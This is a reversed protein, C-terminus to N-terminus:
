SICQVNMLLVIYLILCSDDISITNEGHINYKTISQVCWSYLSYITVGGGRKILYQIPYPTYATFTSHIHQSYITYSTHPTNNPHVPYINPPIINYPKHSRIVQILTRYKEKYLIYPYLIYKIIYINYHSSITHIPFPCTYTHPM